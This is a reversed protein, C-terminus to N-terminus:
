GSLTLPFSPVRQRVFPYTIFNRLHIGNSMFKSLKNEVIQLKHPYSVQLLSTAFYNDVRPILILMLYTWAFYDPTFSLSKSTHPASQSICVITRHCCTQVKKITCKCLIIRFLLCLFVFTKLNAVINSLTCVTRRLCVYMRVYTSSQLHVNFHSSCGFCYKLMTSHSLYTVNTFPYSTFKAFRLSLATTDALCTALWIRFHTRRSWWM